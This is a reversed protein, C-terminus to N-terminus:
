LKPFPIFTPEADLSLIPEAFESNKHNALVLKNADKPKYGAARDLSLTIHYFGGDSRRTAGGVAVMLAELGDGSDVHGLVLIPARPPKSSTEPVGFEATIHHAQVEPYKPPFEKLIRERSEPTLVYAIYGYRASTSFRRLYM